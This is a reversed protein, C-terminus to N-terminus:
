REALIWLSGLFPRRWLGWFVLSDDLVSALYTFYGWVGRDLLHPPVVAAITSWNTAKKKQDRGLSLISPSKVVKYWLGSVRFHDQSSHRDFGAKRYWYALVLLAPALDWFLHQLNWDVVHITVMVEFAFPQLIQIQSKQVQSNDSHAKRKQNKRNRETEM